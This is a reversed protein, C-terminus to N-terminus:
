GHIRVELAPHGGELLGDLPAIPRRNPFVQILIELQHENMRSSRYDWPVSPEIHKVIIHDVVILHDLLGDREIAIARGHELTDLHPGGHLPLVSAPHEDERVDPPKSVTMPLDPTTM